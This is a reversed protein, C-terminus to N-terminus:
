VAAVVSEAKLVAAGEAGGEGRDAGALLGDRPNDRGGEFAKSFVADLRGPHVV